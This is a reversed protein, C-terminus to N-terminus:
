WTTARNPALSDSGVLKSIWFYRTRGCRDALAARVDVGASTAPPVPIM